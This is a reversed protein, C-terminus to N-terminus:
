LKLTIGEKFNDSYQVTINVPFCDDQCPIAAEAKTHYLLLRQPWLLYQIVVEWQWSHLMMYLFVLLKEKPM